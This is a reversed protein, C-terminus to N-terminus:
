LVFQHGEYVTIMYLLTIQVEYLMGYDRSPPGYDRRPPHSDYFGNGPTYDYDRYLACLIVLECDAEDVIM